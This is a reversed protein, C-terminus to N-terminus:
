AMSINSIVGRDRQTVIGDSAAGRFCGIWACACAIAVIRHHRRNAAVM